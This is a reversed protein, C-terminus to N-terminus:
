MFPLNVLVHPPITKKNQKTKENEEHTKILSNVSISIYQLSKNISIFTPSLASKPSHIHNMTFMGIIKLFINHAFTVIPVPFHKTKNPANVHESFKMAIQMFVHSNQGSAPAVCFLFHECFHM